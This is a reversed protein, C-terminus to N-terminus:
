SLGDGRILVNVPQGLLSENKKSYKSNLKENKMNKQPAFIYGCLLLMLFSRYDSYLGNTSSMMILISLVLILKTSLKYTKFVSKIVFFYAIVFMIVVIIGFHFIYNLWFNEIVKVGIALQLNKFDDYSMGLLFDEYNLTMAYDFLQLRVDISGGDTKESMMLRSGMNTNFVILSVVVVLLFMAGILLRKQRNSFSHFNIISYLVFIAANMFFSTRANYALIAITGLFFLKYKKKISSFLLFGNIICTLEANALPGGWLAVSRFVSDNFSVYGEAYANEYWGIFHSKMAFEVIAMCCNLTFINLLVKEMSLKSVKIQEFLFLLLAPFMLNMLVLFSNAMIGKSLRMLITVVVCLAVLAFPSYFFLKMRGKITIYLLSYVLLFYTVLKPDIGMRHGINTTLVYIFVFLFSFLRM